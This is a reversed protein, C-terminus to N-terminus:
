SSYVDGMFKGILRKKYLLGQSDMDERSPLIPYGDKNRKLKIDPNKQKRASEDKSGDALSAGLISAL